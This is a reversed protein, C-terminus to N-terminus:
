GFKSTYSLKELAKLKERVECLEATLATVKQGEGAPSPYILRALKM